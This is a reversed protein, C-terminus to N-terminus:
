LSSLSVVEAKGSEIDRYCFREAQFFNDFVKAKSQDLSLRRNSTIYSVYGNNFYRVLFRENSAYHTNHTLM